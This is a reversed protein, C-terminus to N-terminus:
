AYICTVNIPDLCRTIKKKKLDECVALIAREVANGM